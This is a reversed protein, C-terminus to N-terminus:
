HYRSCTNHLSWIKFLVVSNPLSKMNQITCCFKSTLQVLKRLKHNQYHM